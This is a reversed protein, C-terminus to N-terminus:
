FYYTYVTIVVIEADEEIFIPRVQKTDYRQGNWELHFGFDMRCEQRGGDAPRWAAHRICEAVEAESAGRREANEKAHMSLRIPKASEMPQDPM